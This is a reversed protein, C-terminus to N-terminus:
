YDVLEVELLNSINVCMREAGGIQLTDIVQIIKM